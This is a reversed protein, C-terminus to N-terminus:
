LKIDLGFLPDISQGARQMKTLGLLFTLREEKKDAKPNLVGFM